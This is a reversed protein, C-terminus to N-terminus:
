NLLALTKDHIIISNKGTLAPQIWQLAKEADGKVRVTFKSMELCCTRFLSQMNSMNEKAMNFASNYYKEASSYSFNSQAVKAQRLIRAVISEAPGERELVVESWHLSELDDRTIMSLLKDVDPSFTDLQTEKDRKEIAIFSTLPTIISLRISLDTLYNKLDYKRTEHFVHDRHFSGIDYDRVLARGVLRHLTLSSGDFEIPTKLSEELRQGAIEVTLQVEKVKPGLSFLLVKSGTFVSSTQAPVQILDKTESRHDANEETQWTAKVCSVSPQRCRDIQAAIKGEWKSKTKPSFSEFAGGSVDALARLIHRNGASSVACTFIRNVHKYKSAIELTLKENTLHGDSVLLVNRASNMMPLLSLSRLPRWAESSGGVSRAGEIFELAELLQRQGVPEVTPFLETFDTGFTIVNFRSKEPLSQLIMKCIKKADQKPEGKMSTSCDLLLVVEPDAILESQITPYFVAMSAYSECSPDFETWFRPTNPHIISILLQFGDGLQVRDGLTVTAKMEKRKVKIVHTPSEVLSINSLMEMTIQLSEKRETENSAVGTLAQTEETLKTGRIEEQLWPAVSGLLYFAMKGGEEEALETVYTIKIVVRARPPLNGISVSFVNSAEEQMLYAGHGERVAEQYEKQAIEKTKVTGVVHKDNIFAEFGCVAAKEDLPFVYRAERINTESIQSQYVQLVTIKAALDTIHGRVHVEELIVGERSNAVVLGAATRSVPDQCCQVDALDIKDSTEKTEGVNGVVDDEDDDEEDYAYGDVVDDDGDISFEVLYRICQQKTSYVVFEDEKFESPKNESARVGHTSEFGEPAQQMKTNFEYYDQTSGLAVRIVLMMRTQSFYGNKTYQICTSTRDGFYLGPGLLGEDRRQGNFMEVVVKPMLLGRSLIGLVNNPKTAHFLLTDNGIDHLYGEEDPPRSVAYIRFTNVKMENSMTSQVLRKIKEYEPHDLPLHQIYCRLARYKAEPTPRKQWGTEESIYVADRIMQCLDLKTAVKSLLRIPSQMYDHHPILAYFEEQLTEIEADSIEDDYEDYEDYEDGQHKSKRKQLINWMQYLVAEAKAVQGPLISAVPVALHEKLKGMAEKWVNDVLKAVEPSLGQTPSYTERYLLTKRLAESGIWRSNNVSSVPAMSARGDGSSTHQKYLDDYIQLAEEATSAYHCERDGSEEDTATGTSTLHTVVKFPFDKIKSTENGDTQDGSTSSSSTLKSPTINRQIEVSFVRANGPAAAHTEQLVAAKVLQEQVPVIVPEDIWPMNKISTAM